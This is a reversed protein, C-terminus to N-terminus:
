LRKGFLAYRRIARGYRGSINRSVNSEHMLANIVRRYGARNAEEYLAELLVSGLGAFERSPNIALTKGIVTDRARGAASQAIDPVGFLYGVVKNDREALIVLNPDIANM